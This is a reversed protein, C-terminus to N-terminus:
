YISQLTVAGAHHTSEVNNADRVIIAFDETFGVVTHVQEQLQVELGVMWNLERQIKESMQQKDLHCCAIFNYFLKKMFVQKDIEAFTAKKAVEESFSTQSLNVGVGICQKILQEKIQTEVLIGAIKGNDKLIDNPWKMKTPIAFHAFTEQLAVGMYLAYPKKVCVPEVFVITSFLNNQNTSEWARGFRGYGATQYDAVLVLRETVEAFDLRKAYANTSDIESFHVVKYSM